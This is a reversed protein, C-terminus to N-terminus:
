TEDASTSKVTLPDNPTDMGIGVKDTDTTLRVVSGDDEWGSQGLAPGNLALIMFGIAAIGVTSKM